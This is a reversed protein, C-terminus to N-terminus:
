RETEEPRDEVLGLAMAWTTTVRTATDLSWGRTEALDDSLGALASPSLPAFRTLQVPINEEAGVVLQHIERRLRTSEDPGLAAELDARLRGARLKSADGHSALVSRVATVLAPPTSNDTASV